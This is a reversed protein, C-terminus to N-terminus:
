AYNTGESSSPPPQDMPSIPQYNQATTRTILIGIGEIMALLIGGILGSALMAGKGSRVALIAGTAAGSAISNWPDEKKRVHALTCDILSFTGGWVAFNGGTVPARTKIASWSSTLRRNLGKPATYFGKIGQFLSGGFLGM